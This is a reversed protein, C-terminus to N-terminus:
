SQLKDNVITNRNGIEAKPASPPQARVRACYLTESNAEGWTFTGTVTVFLLLGVIVAEADPDASAVLSLSSLSVKVFVAVLSFM